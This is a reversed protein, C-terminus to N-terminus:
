PKPTPSAIAPTPPKPVCVFQMKDQISSEDLVMDAKQCQKNAEKLATQVSQQATAIIKDDETKHIMAGQIAIVAKLYATEEASVDPTDAGQLFATFSLLSFITKKM